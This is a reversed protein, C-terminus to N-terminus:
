KLLCSGNSKIERYLADPALDLDGPWSVTGNSIVVQEFNKSQKLCKFVGNFFSRMFDVFGELGDKFKVKLKNECIIEASVINWNM